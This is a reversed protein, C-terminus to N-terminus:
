LINKINIEKVNADHFLLTKTKSSKLILMM